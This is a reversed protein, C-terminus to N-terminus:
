PHCALEMPCNQPGTDTPTTPFQSSGFGPHLASATTFYLGGVPSARRAASANRRKKKQGWGFSREQEVTWTFTEYKDRASQEKKKGLGLKFM